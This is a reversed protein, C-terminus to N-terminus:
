AKGNTPVKSNIEVLLDIQAFFGLRPVTLSRRSPVKAIPDAPRRV